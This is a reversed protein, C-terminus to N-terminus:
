KSPAPQRPVENPSIITPKGNWSENPHYELNGLHLNAFHLETVGQENEYLAVLAQYYSQGVYFTTGKYSIHGSEAVRKVIYDSPYSLKDQEGLRRSSSRYIDAPCLMDLAEHPRVQNYQQRWRDFRKQQARFTPAAPKIAEAKLDKHMREHSGNEQPSSPRIFEVQIGQMVWWVSLQSLRGPSFSAAFPTGNDVRIIEPLGYHRMIKKFSYFTRNYQQNPQAKCAIVYRSFRDCVTLPDCRHGNGLTFWGKFDVTWVENPRTPETLHDRCVEYKGAKRKRKKVLGHRRLILGITNLHPPNKIGYDRRLLVHIKKPGWTPHKRRLTLILAEIAEDTATTSCKPRRSRELLGDRGEQEFRTLYKHGTKRSISFEECLQTITFRGSRALHVFREKETMPDIEKWPM